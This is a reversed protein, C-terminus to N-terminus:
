LPRKPTHVNPHNHSPTVKSTYVNYSLKEEKASNALPEEQSQTLYRYLATVFTWNDNLKEKSLKIPDIPLNIKLQAMANQAIRLNLTNEYETKPHWIIRNILISGPFYYNIIRCYTVGKGLDEIRINPQIDPLLMHIWAGIAQRSPQPQYNAGKNM